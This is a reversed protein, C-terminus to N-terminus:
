PARREGVDGVGGVTAERHGAVRALEVEGSSLRQRRDAVNGIEVQLTQVVVRPPIAEQHDALAAEDAYEAVVARQLLQGGRTRV